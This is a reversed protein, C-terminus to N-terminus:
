RQFQPEDVELKALTSSDHSGNVLPLIKTMFPPVTIISTLVSSYSLNEEINGPNPANAQEPQGM